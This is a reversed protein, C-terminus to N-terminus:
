PYSISQIIWKYFIKWLLTANEDFFCRSSLQPGLLLSLYVLDQQLKRNANWPSPDVDGHLTIPSM